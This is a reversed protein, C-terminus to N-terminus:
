QIDTNKIPEGVQLQQKCTRNEIIESQMASIGHVDPLKSRAAIFNVGYKFKDGVNIDKTAILRVRHKTLFDYDAYLGIYDPKLEGKIIQCMIKFNDTDLSHGDDASEFDRVKFHKEIVEAKHFRAAEISECIGASHDSFGIKVVSFRERMTDIMGLLNQTAPYCPVCYLLTILSTNDYLKLIQDIEGFVAGGCSIIVPKKTSNLYRHLKIDPFNSSAVKHTKVLADIKRYAEVSFASCMFEIGCADAKSKLAVMDDYAINEVPSKLDILHERAYEVGFLDRESYWQYKVADAGAAKAMSVSNKLDNFDNFNSGVDAIIKM